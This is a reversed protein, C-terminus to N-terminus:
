ARSTRRTGREGTRPALLYRGPLASSGCGRGGRLPTLAIAVATAPGITRREAALHHGRSGASRRPISPRWSGASETCGPAAQYNAGREDTRSSRPSRWLSFARLHIESGETAAPPQSRDGRRAARVSRAKQPGRHLRAARCPERLLHRQGHKERRRLKGPAGATRRRPAPSGHGVVVVRRARAHSPCTQTKLDETREQRRRRVVALEFRADRSEGRARPTM